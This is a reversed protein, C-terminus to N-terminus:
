QEEEESEEQRQTSSAEQGKGRADEAVLRLRVAERHWEPQQGWLAVLHVPDLQAEPSSTAPPPSSGPQQLFRPQTRLMDRLLARYADLLHAVDQCSPVLPPPLAHTASSSPTAVFSHVPPRVHFNDRPHLM